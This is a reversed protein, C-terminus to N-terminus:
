GPPFGPPEPQVSVWRATTFEEIAWRPGGRGTSAGTLGAFATNADDNAPCDNVHMMDAQVRLAFRV